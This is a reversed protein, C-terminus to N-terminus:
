IDVKSNDHVALNKETYYTKLHKIDSEAVMFPKEILNCGKKKTDYITYRIQDIRLPKLISQM